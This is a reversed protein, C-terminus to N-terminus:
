PQFFVGFPVIIIGSVSMISHQHHGKWHETLPKRNSIYVLGFQTGKETFLSLLCLCLFYLPVATFLYKQKM